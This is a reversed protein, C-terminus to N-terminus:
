PSWFLPLLSQLEATISLCNGLSWSQTVVFGASFDAGALFTIVLFIYYCGSQLDDSAGMPCDIM